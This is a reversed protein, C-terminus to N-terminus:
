RATLRDGPDPDNNILHHSKLEIPPLDRVEAVTEVLTTKVAEPLSNLDGGEFYVLAKLSESPQFNKGYLRRAAALGYSLRVGDKIMAAVDLYDKAEIRQLIVKLKTAVLDALSAVPLIGDDSWQPEGVRGHHIDGFFSIKVFEASNEEVLITLTNPTDQLVTARNIFDCANFLASRNLPETSFLDFDVSTRHGLRLAIATGGYLVFNLAALPALRPWLRQQVPPLIQWRTKFQQM